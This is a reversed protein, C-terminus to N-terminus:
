SFVAMFVARAACTSVNVPSAVPVPTVLIASVKAALPTVAPVAFPIVTLLLPRTVAIESITTLPSTVPVTLPCANVNVSILVATVGPVTLPMVTLLLPRTVPIVANVLTGVKVLKPVELTLVVALPLKITLPFKVTFPVTVM